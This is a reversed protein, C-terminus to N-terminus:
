EKDILGNEFYMKAKKNCYYLYNSSTQFISSSTNIPLHTEYLFLCIDKAINFFSYKIYSNLAPLSNGTKYYIIAKIDKEEEISIVRYHIKVNDNVIISFNLYNIDDDKLNESKIKWINDTKISKAINNWNYYFDFADKYYKKIFFSHTVVLSIKNKEDENYYKFLSNIKDCIQSLMTTILSFKVFEQVYLLDNDNEFNLRFEIITSYDITNSILSLVIDLNKKNEIGNIFTIKYKNIINFENNEIESIKFVANFNNPGSFIFGSDVISWDSGIFKKISFEQNQGLLELTKNQFIITKVSDLPYSFSTIHLQKSKKSM